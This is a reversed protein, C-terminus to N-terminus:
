YFNQASGDRNGYHLAADINIEGTNSIKETFKAVILNFKNDM